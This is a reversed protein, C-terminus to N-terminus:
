FIYSQLMFPEISCFVYKGHCHHNSMLFLLCRNKNESERKSDTFSSFSQLTVAESYRMKDFLRQLTPLRYSKWWPTRESFIFSVWFSVHYKKQVMVPEFIVFLCLIAVRAVMSVPFSFNRTKLWERKLSFFSCVNRQACPIFFLRM